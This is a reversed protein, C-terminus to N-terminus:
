RVHVPVLDRRALNRRDFTKVPRDSRDISPRYLAVSPSYALSVSDQLRLNSRVNPSASRASRLVFTNTPRAYGDCVPLYPKGAQSQRVELRASWGIPLGGPLSRAGPNPAHPPDRTWSRPAVVFDRATYWALPINPLMCNRIPQPGNPRYDARWISGRGECASSRNRHM